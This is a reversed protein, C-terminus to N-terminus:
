TVIKATDLRQNNWISLEEENINLKIWKYKARKSSFFEIMGTELELEMDSYM